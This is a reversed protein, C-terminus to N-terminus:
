TCIRPRSRNIIQSRPCHFYVTHLEQTWSLHYFAMKMLLSAQIFHLPLLLISFHMSLLVLYISSCVLSASPLAADTISMEHDQMVDIAWMIEATHAQGTSSSAAQAAAKAQPKAKGKGHSKPPAAKKKPDSKAKAKAQTSSSKAPTSSTSRGKGKSSATPDRCPRKCDAVVHNTSRCRLCRGVTNPHQYLCQGGKQCGSDTM